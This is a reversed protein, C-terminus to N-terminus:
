VANGRRVQFCFATLTAAALVQEPLWSGDPTIWGAAAAGVLGVAYLAAPLLGVLCLGFYRGRFLPAALGM